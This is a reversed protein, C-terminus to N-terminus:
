PERFRYGRGPVTAILEPGIVKRLTSVHVQLNNEEVATGPWVRDMLADKSVLGGEAEVLALLVDFARSGLAVPAGDRLLRRRVPLLRWRGFTWGAEEAETTV